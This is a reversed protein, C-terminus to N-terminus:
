EEIETWAPWIGKKYILNYGARHSLSCRVKKTLCVGDVHVQADCLQPISKLIRRPRKGLHRSVPLKMFKIGVKRTAWVSFRRDVIRSVQIRDRLQSSGRSFSIVIWELVIAQFIRHVSSGPLSCDMPNCLTLCLQAVEGESESGKFQGEGQHNLHHLIQKCHLFGPKWRQICFIQQFLFDIGVGTIKGPSHVHVSSGPLSCDMHDWLIPCSQAVLM